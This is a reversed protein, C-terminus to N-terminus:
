LWRENEALRMRMREENWSNSSAMATTRRENYGELVSWRENWEYRKSM